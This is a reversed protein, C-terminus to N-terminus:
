TLRESITDLNPITLVGSIYGRALARLHDIERRRLFRLAQRPIEYLTAGLVVRTLASRMNRKVFLLRNRTMYYAFGPSNEGGSSASIHHRIVAGTVVVTRLGSERVRISFDADEYYAFYRDEFDLPLDLVRKTILMMCGNAYASDVVASVGDVRADRHGIHGTKGSKASITGGFWWVKDPRSVFVIKPTAVGISPDEDVAKVLEEIAGPELVIDNNMILLLETRCQRALVLAQRCAGAFGINQTNEVTEAEPFRTKVSAISNDQSANDVVCVVMGPVEQALLSNLCEVLLQGKNWNVIVALLRCNENHRTSIRELDLQLTMLLDEM